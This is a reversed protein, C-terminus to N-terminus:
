VSWGMSEQQISFLKHYLGKKTMLIEHIGEEAIEGKDLVIIKDAKAITRLKHAIVIVTKGKILEGIAQQIHEESEPDLSATAEDLLVIPADKLLARAISLRQREGGSLTNGNEGLLTNYGDPLKNIFEDCRAAKAAAIVEEKTANMNGININNYITDNFLVVDQFVFSMYGMLHEPDLNKIDVGGITIKGKDVDWFRAVLRSLTSKGSGSPGVLATISNAPITTSINSITKEKGKNYSFDVDQFEINYEEIPTEKGEMPVYDMLTRMRKIAIQHYFLEPLLQLEVNIPGYIRTVILLFALLPILEIQGGALLTTGVFITLGIGAQLIMQSSAVFIGSGLETQIALKKMNLLANNLKESKEGDLTCAKIVKIGEIYEQVQGSAELKAVAHRKGLFQQIKRSAVIIFLAIPVSIFIALSMRWDYFSLMICIITVSIGNAILQPYVHSLVHESTEVDGMMNTTLETLDKSNFLSMPLKRIHEAIAIRTNKSELYSAVYTKKYDNKNCIFILIFGFIGAAFLGWLKLWSISENNFPKVIEMIAFLMISAPIFMSFNTITCAFIAKKLDKYGKDTLFMANKLYPEKRTKEM